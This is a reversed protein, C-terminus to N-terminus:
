RECGTVVIKFTSDRKLLALKHADTSVGIIYEYGCGVAAGRQKNMQKMEKDIERDQVFESYTDFRHTKIEWLVRVGVQLADFSVGDVFVDMGPYRNPPFRDACENHADDEGDHPEPIPECRRRREEESTDTPWLPPVDPGKPESKPTKKPSPEQPAPKTVPVPRTEPLPRVRPRSRREEELAEKIAFGVVVIGTVVVAGVLIEPAALVCVGLGMAAAGASAVACRGTADHFAVREHDLAQYCREALVPWPRSAEQVVCRGGDTWPLAAARQLNALRPSRDVSEQPRPASTACASVSLLLAICARLRMNVDELLTLVWHARTPHNPTPWRVGVAISSCARGCPLRLEPVARVWPAPQVTRPLRREPRRLAESSLLALSRAKASLAPLPL